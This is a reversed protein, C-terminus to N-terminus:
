LSWIHQMEFYTGVNNWFKLEPWKSRNNSYFKRKGKWCKKQREMAPWEGDTPWIGVVHGGGPVMCGNPVFSVLLSIGNVDASSIEWRGIYGTRCTECACLFLVEHILQGHCFVADLVEHGGIYTSIM